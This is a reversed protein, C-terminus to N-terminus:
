ERNNKKRVLMAALGALSVAFLTMWIGSADGTKPAGIVAPVTNNGSSVNGNVTIDNDSDDNSDNNNDGNDPKAAITFNTTASGDTWVLEFTHSGESLTKLYDAKLTIITSGETVTYNSPDIVNGDVKVSQFKAIEGDGRIVLTGDTNQTWKSDAGDIIKYANRDPTPSSEPTPSPTPIINESVTLTVIDTTISGAANRIICYYRFGNCDLDTVGTTYGASDAGNVAVFGNGDNRDIMWQYMVDTGTATVKFTAREGTKVSASVPQSNIVPADVHYLEVEGTLVAYNGDKPTFRWKYTKNMEVVTEGSLVKDESDIWELTGETPFITSDALTLGAAALTKGDTTIVTYKPKGTSVAQTITIVVPASVAVFYDDDAAKTATISIRGVKVPTLINGEIAAAGDGLETSIHYTVAGTGSGGTTGLTLTQGYVVTNDGTISLPTQDSKAAMTIVVNVIADEYNASTITVPLTVIDGISGKGTLTYKLMGAADVSADSIIGTNGVIEGLTYGTAGAVLDALDVTKGGTLTYKCNVKKDALTPAAAKNITLTGAELGTRANYNIGGDVDFTVVYSGANMPAQTSGNYKVTVNGMGNIGDKEKVNVTRASGDYTLAAPLGPTVDFDAPKPDIRTIKWTTTATGTYNDRGSITLTISDNANTAKAGGVIKYTIAASWGELKVSAINVMQETGTYAFSDAELEIVAGNISKPSIDFTKDATGTYNGTGTITLTATGANFNNSYSYTFDTGSTLTATGDKVEPAPEIDRAAYEQAPIDAIMDATVEKPDVTIYVGAPGGDYTDSTYTVTLLSYGAKKARITPTATDAGSVIELVSDDSSKWSWKGNDGAPVTKTLAATLSFDADGYTVTPSESINKFDIGVYIKDVVNVTILQEDPAEFNDTAEATVRINFPTATDDAKEAKLMNGTLTIGTPTNVLEYTLKADSDNNNFTAWKSIDVEKDNKVLTQTAATLQIVPKAKQITFTWAPDSLQSAENYNPDGNATVLVKYTGAKIAQDLTDNADKYEVHICNENIKASSVTAYKAEGDYVLNAPPTVTFDGATLTAKEITYDVSATVSKDDAGICTIGATYTGANVPAGELVDGGKVRYTVDAETPTKVNEVFRGDLTISKATGDYTLTDAAPAKLTLSGGEVGCDCVAVITDKAGTKLAYKWSHPHEVHYLYLMGEEPGTVVYGQGAMDSKFIQTYDLTSDNANKAIISKRGAPLTDRINVGIQAKETLGGAGITIKQYYGRLCVNGDTGNDGRVYVGNELTGNKYNDTIRVTGSMTLSYYDNVYVGGGCNNEPTTTNNGTITGGTMAVTGGRLYVGGGNSASTNGSIKGGSMTFSDSDLYVGGGSSASANGSIEGDNMIFTGDAYVGGGYSADSTTKNNSIKGGNMTFTGGNLYVGGGNSASTNGSITGGTLTFKGNDIYVGGGSYNGSTNENDAITGEEMNFTCNKGVFVGGSSASGGSSKNGKISGGTMTFKGGNLYVGGSGYAGITENGTIEGGAMNFTGYVYVGGGGYSRDKVPNTNKSISGGTMTFTGAVYVGAASYTYTNKNETITGQNLTFTGGNKVYVGGCPGMNEAIKGGDMTFTGGTVYVGGGTYGSTSENGTIDGGTMTFTGGAQYVGGRITGTNETISGGKMAFTGRDLCVGGGTNGTIDGGTMTFTGNICVGGVGGTNGTITGGNMTFTGGDLYVGGGDRYGGTSTNGTISGGNMIFTGDTGYVRVGGYYHDTNGTIIGNWLTLTGDTFIGGNNEGTADTKHTIKGPNTGCDTIALSAGKGVGIAYTGDAGTITYGNLCLTVDAYRCVWVTDLEVSQKLYYNGSGNIDSLSSIGTWTLVAHKEGDTHTCEAGCIPHDAHTGDQAAVTMPANMAESIANLRTMDLEAIQEETLSDMAEAIAELQAGVSEANEETVTEPLADILAQVAQVAADKEKVTGQAASDAGADGGSIDKIDEGSNDAEYVTVNSQPEPSTEPVTTEQETADAEQALATMPVTSFCLTVAMLLSLVRKKM